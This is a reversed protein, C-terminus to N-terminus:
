ALLVQIYDQETSIHHSTQVHTSNHNEQGHNTKVDFVQCRLPSLSVCILEHGSSYASSKTQKRTWKERRM